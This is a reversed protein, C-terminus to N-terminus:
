KIDVTIINGEKFYQKEKQKLLSKINTQYKENFYELILNCM